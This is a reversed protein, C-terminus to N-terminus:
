PLLVCVYVCVSVCKRARERHLLGAMWDALSRALWSLEARAFKVCTGDDFGCALQAPVMAMIMM